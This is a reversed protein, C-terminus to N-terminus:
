ASCVLGVRWRPDRNIWASEASAHREARAGALTEKDWAREAEARRETRTELGRRLAQGIPRKSEGGAEAVREARTERGRRSAASRDRAIM